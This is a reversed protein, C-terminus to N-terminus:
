RRDTGGAPLARPRRGRRMAARDAKISAYIEAVHGGWREAILEAMDRDTWQPGYRARLVRFFARVEAEAEAVSGGSGSAVRRAMQGVALDDVRAALRALRGTLGSAAM